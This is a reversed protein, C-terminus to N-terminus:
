SCGSDQVEATSKQITKAVAFGGPRYSLIDKPDLTDLVAIPRAPLRVLGVIIATGWAWRFIAQRRSLMRRLPMAEFTM